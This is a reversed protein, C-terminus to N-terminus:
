PGTYQKSHIGGDDMGEICHRTVHGEFLGDGRFFFLEYGHGGGTQV